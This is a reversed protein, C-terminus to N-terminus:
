PCDREDHRQGNIGKRIKRLLGPRQRPGATGPTVVPNDKRLIDSNELGRKALLAAAVVKCCLQVISM